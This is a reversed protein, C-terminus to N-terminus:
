PNSFLSQGQDDTSMSWYVRGTKDILKVSAPMPSYSTVALREGYKGIGSVDYSVRTTTIISMHRASIDLLM